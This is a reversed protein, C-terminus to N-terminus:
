YRIGLLGLAHFAVKVEVNVKNDASLHQGCHCENHSAQVDKRAFDHDRPM